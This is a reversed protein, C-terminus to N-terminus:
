RKCVARPNPKQNLIKISKVCWHDIEEIIFHSPNNFNMNYYPLIYTIPKEDHNLTPLDVIKYNFLLVTDIYVLPSDLVKLDIITPLPIEKMKQPVRNDILVRQLPLILIFSLLNLMLLIAIPYKKKFNSIISINLFISMPTYLRLDVWIYNKYLTMNFIMISGLIILGSLILKDKRFFTISFLITMWLWIKQVAYFSGYAYTFAYYINQIFNNFVANLAPIYEQNGLMEGVESFTNPVQEHLFKQYLFPFVLGVLLYISRNLGKLPSPLVILGFFAFFWTSRISGLIFIYLILIIYNKRSNQEVYKKLLHFLGIGGAIQLLEPLYTISYFLTIPSGIIILTQLIRREWTEKNNWLITLIALLLIALNILPITLGGWGVIKAISGYLLPYFPGHADAGLVRAGEGSYTFSAKISNSLYFSETNKYFFYEDGYYPSYDFKLFSFFYFYVTLIGSIVILFFYLKRFKKFHLVLESIKSM